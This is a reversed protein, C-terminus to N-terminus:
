VLGALTRRPPNIKSGTIIGPRNISFPSIDYYTKGTTALDVLIRGFLPTFKFARGSGGTFISVNQFGPLNDLIMEGDASMTYLCTSADTPTAQIGNFRQQLFSGLDALIQPDPQWSCDHPESYINNTFDASVKLHGPTEEVPFGYFLQQQGNANPPGFEYWLPYQYQDVAAQFYAITMQWIALKLQVNFPSLVSNTWAGPCLILSSASYTGVPSTVQYPNSLGTVTASTDTLWAVGANYALEAFASFSQVVRIVASNAQVLGIYDAPMTQFAPYDQLMGSANPYWMYPVGLGALATKMQRINGEVSQEAAGYFVLPQTWLIDAGTTTEIEKWLALSVEALQAMYPPAYMIRFMRSFGGSSAFANGMIPFQEFLLTKLGRAAAYYAASLGM